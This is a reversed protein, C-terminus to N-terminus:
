TEVNKAYNFARLLAPKSKFLKECRLLKKVGLDLEALSLYGNHNPDM